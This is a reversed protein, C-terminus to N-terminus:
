GLRYISTWSNLSVCGCSPFFFMFMIMLEKLLSHSSSPM